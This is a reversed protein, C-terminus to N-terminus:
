FGIKWEGFTNCISDYDIPTSNVFGNVMRRRHANFKDNILSRSPQFWPTPIGAIDLLLHPLDDVMFPRHTSQAIKRELEPHLLRCSDTLYILFPIDFQCHLGPAGKSIPNSERGVHPRYDNAEDGHDSFYLIIADKDKYMDIIENVISDNYLTANDYDAVEQLQETSLEARNYDAVKFYAREIPFKNGPRCHQGILHFMILNQNNGEVEQRKQKYDDILGEDYYYWANNKHSFLFNEIKPHYFFAAPVNIPNQNLEKVYQNSYFTVNYGAKKFITPFLPTDYWKLSDTSALSLFLKFSSSTLNRPSIVDDFVYLHKLQSLRPNTNLGYGYLSSHHRNFSEGIIVVIDEISSTGKVPTVLEQAKACKEFSSYLEIFQEAGEKAKYLYSFYPGYKKLICIFEELRM